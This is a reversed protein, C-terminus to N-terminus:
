YGLDTIHYEGGNEAHKGNLKLDANLNEFVVCATKNYNPYIQGFKKNMDNIASIRLKLKHSESKPIGSLAERLKEKTIESKPKGGAPHDNGYLGFMGNKEGLTKGKSNESMKLLASESHTKGYMPNRKGSMACNKCFCNKNIARQLLYKNAYTLIKNCNPCNRSFDSM